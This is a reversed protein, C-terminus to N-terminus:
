RELDIHVPMSTNNDREAETITIDLIRNRNMIESTIMLAINDNLSWTETVSDPCLRFRNNNKRYLEELNDKDWYLRKDHGVLLVDACLRKSESIEWVVLLHTASSTDESIATSEHSQKKKLRYVLAGYSTDDSEIIFGSRMTNGACVKYDPPRHCELEGDTIYTPSVLDVNL